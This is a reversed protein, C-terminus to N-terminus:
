SGSPCSAEAGNTGPGHPQSNMSDVFGMGPSLQAPQMLQCIQISCSYEQLVLIELHSSGMLWDFVPDKFNESM